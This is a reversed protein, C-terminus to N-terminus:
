HCRYVFLCPAKQIRHQHKAWFHKLRREAILSDHHCKNSRHLRPSAPNVAGCQVKSGVVGAGVDACHRYMCVSVWADMVALARGEMCRTTDRRTADHRSPAAIADVWSVVRGGLAFGRDARTSAARGPAVARCAGATRGHDSADSAGSAQWCRMYVSVIGRTRICTGTGDDARQGRCCLRWTVRCRWSQAM